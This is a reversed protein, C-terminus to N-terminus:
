AALVGECRVCLRIGGINDFQLANTPVTYTGITAPPAVSPDGVTFNSSSDSILALEPGRNPTGATPRIWEMPATIPDGNAASSAANEIYGINTVTGAGANDSGAHTIAPTLVAQNAVEVETGGSVRVWQNTATGTMRGFNRVLTAGNITPQLPDSAFSGGQYVYALPQNTADHLNAVFMDLAVPISPGIAPMTVTQTLVANADLTADTFDTHHGIILPDAASGLQARGAFPAQETIFRAMFTGAYVTSVTGAHAPPAATTADTPMTSTSQVFGQNTWDGVHSAASVNCIGHTTTTGAGYCSLWLEDAAEVELLTDADVWLTHWGDAGFTALEQGFDYLLTSGTIPTTTSTGSYLAWHAREADTASWGAGIYIQLAYIRRTDGAPVTMHQTTCIGNLPGDVMGSGSDYRHTHMGLMGNREDTDVTANGRDDWDAASEAVVGPGSYNVDAGDSATLGWNPLAAVGAAIATAAQAATDGSTLDVATGTSGSLEAVALGPDAGNGDITVYVYRTTGLRHYWGQYNTLRGAGLAWYWDYIVPARVTWSSTFLEVAGGGITIPMVTAPGVTIPAVTTPDVM